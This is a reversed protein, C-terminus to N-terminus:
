LKPHFPPFTSAPLCVSGGELTSIQNTVTYGLFAGNPLNVFIQIGNGYHPADRFVTRVSYGLGAWHKAMVASAADTDSMGPGWLSFAYQQPGSPGRGCSEPQYGPALGPVWARTLEDYTWDGGATTVGDGMSTVLTALSQKATVQPKSNEVSVVVGVILVAVVGLSVLIIARWKKRGRRKLAADEIEEKPVPYPEISNNSVTM